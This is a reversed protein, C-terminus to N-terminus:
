VRIGAQRQENGQNEAWRQEIEDCVRVEAKTGAPPHVDMQSTKFRMGTCDPRPCSSTHFRLTELGAWEETDVYM